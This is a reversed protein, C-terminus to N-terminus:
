FKLFSSIAGLIQSYFRVVFGVIALTMITPVVSTVMDGISPMIQSFSGVADTIATVNLAASAKSTITAITAGAGATLAVIRQKMTKTTKTTTVIHQTQM